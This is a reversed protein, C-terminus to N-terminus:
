RSALLFWTMHGGYDESLVDVYGRKMKEHALKKAAAVARVPSSYVGKAEQRGTSAAARGYGGMVCYKMPGGDAEDREIWINYFENRGPQYNHLCIMEDVTPM